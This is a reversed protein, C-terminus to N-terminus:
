SKHFPPKEVHAALPRGRVVVSLPAPPHTLEKRNEVYGLGIGRQLVPSQSGSTVQGVIRGDSGLPYGRRPVGREDMVFGILRRRFGDRRVVQLADRGIFEGKELKVLWGLGAEYPHTTEDIDNGYLAFGAELRLTDRAGLGAPVLHHRAGAALLANWVRPADDAATYIEVGLEGTYGTRSVLVGAAGGITVGDRFHYYPTADLFGGVGAADLIPGTAPGQLALLATADSVDEVAVDFDRARTEIWRVDPAVNAANLVLMYRDANVRYVLLDDLIGGDERCMVTYMARGDTLASADNTVLHQVFQLAEGGQVYVEGMHSVDFLGASKRVALHEHVIGSYQVPMDFGAFPVMRAGLALHQEHLPTRKLAENTTMRNSRRSDTRRSVPM